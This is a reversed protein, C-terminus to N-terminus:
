VKAALMAPLSGVDYRGSRFEPTALVDRCFEVTTNVGEIVTERLAREMRVIAAERTDGYAVIKAIMSDYYPPISSGSHVHTDVRIGMGGPFVVKTVTGAQPAFNNRPDEANVRCEIAHGRPVLDRQEYGLREGASVRIQEKVL